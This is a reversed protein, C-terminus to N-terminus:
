TWRDVETPKRKFKNMLKDKSTYEVVTPTITSDLLHVDEATKDCGDCFAGGKGTVLKHAEPSYFSGIIIPTFWDTSLSIDLRLSDYIYEIEEQKRIISWKLNVM